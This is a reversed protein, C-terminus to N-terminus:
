REGEGRSPPTPDTLAEPTPVPEPNAPESRPPALLRTWLADWAARRAAPPLPSSRHQSTM